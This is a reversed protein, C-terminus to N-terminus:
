FDSRVLQFRQLIIDKRNQRLVFGVSALVVYRNQYLERFAYKADWHKVYAPSIGLCITQRSIATATPKGESQQLEREYQQNAEAMMRESPRSNEAYNAKIQHFKTMLPAVPANERFGTM